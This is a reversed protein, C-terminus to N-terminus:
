RSQRYFSPSCFRSYPPDTRPDRALVDRCWDVCGEPQGALLYGNMLFAEYGFLM